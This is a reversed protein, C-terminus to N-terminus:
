EWPSPLRGFRRETDPRVVAVQTRTQGVRGLLWALVFGAVFGGIHAWWAVGAVEAAGVSFSGQLLQLAFWLGLFVPAPIVMIQLFFLIPVLSIVNAHPYL